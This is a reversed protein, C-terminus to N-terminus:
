AADAPQQADNTTAFSKRLRFAVERSLSREQDKAADTLKQHLDGDMRVNVTYFDFNRERMTSETKKFDM